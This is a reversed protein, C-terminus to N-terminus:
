RAGRLSRAFAEAEALRDRDIGTEFGLAHLHDVTKGTAVNGEAGPAYPCGGLGGAAADFVRLGKELSVTINDLARGNTDHFHGALHAAPLYELVVDLMAAVREPTGTGITDALVVEGCGLAHLETAVRAVQAPPTPGDFPCDVACSVYARVPIGDRRASDILPAFRQFSEAISCNINRHSFGESASAFVAVEDAKASVAAAYGRVNPTLVTYLTGPRRTIGAMVEAGDAMQPVWDARVFSTVEIKEFGCASLLDVLRIKDATSILRKENQLGDRPGMEHIRVFEAM